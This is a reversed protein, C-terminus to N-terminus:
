GFDLKGNSFLACKVTKRVDIREDLGILLSLDVDTVCLSASDNDLTQRVELRFIGVDDM